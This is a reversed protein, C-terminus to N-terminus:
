PGLIPVRPLKVIMDYVRWFLGFRILQKSRRTTKWNDDIMPSYLLEM